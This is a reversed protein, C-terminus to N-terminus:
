DLTSSMIELGQIARILNELSSEITSILRNYREQEQLVVITYCHYLGQSNTKFIEKSWHESKIPPPRKEYLEQALNMM